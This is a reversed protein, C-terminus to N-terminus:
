PRTPAPAPSVPPAPAPVPPTPNYGGAAGKATIANARALYSPAGDGYARSEKGPSYSTAYSERMKTPLNSVATSVEAQTSVTQATLWAIAFNFAPQGYTTARENAHFQEHRRTLDECWFATRPPRGNDSSMNPTIDSAVTAYNAQTIAAANENPIDTNGLSQVSWTITNNLTGTVDFSHSASNAVIAIGSVTPTTSTVGFIDSSPTGSNTITPTYTITPAVSDQDIMSLTGGELEIVEAETGIEGSSDRDSNTKMRNGEFIDHSKPMKVSFPRSILNSYTKNVIPNPVPQNSELSNGQEKTQVSTNNPFVSIKGFNHGYGELSPEFTDQTNPQNSRGKTDFDNRFSQESKSQNKHTSFM